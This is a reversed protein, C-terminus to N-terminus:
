FHLVTNSTDVLFVCSAKGSTLSSWRPCGRRSCGHCSLRSELLVRRRRMPLAPPTLLRSPSTSASSTATTTGSRVPNRGLGLDMVLRLNNRCWLWRSWRSRCTMRTDIFMPNFTFTGVSLFKWRTLFSGIISSVELLFVLPLSQCGDPGSRGSTFILSGWLSLVYFLVPM